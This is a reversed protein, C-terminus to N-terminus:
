KIKNKQLAKITVALTSTQNSVESYHRKLVIKATMQGKESGSTFLM